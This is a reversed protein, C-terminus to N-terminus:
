RYRRAKPVSASAHVRQSMPCQHGAHSEAANLGLPMTNPSFHKAQTRQDIKHPIAQLYICESLKRYIRSITVYVSNVPRGLEEALARGNLGQRYKM